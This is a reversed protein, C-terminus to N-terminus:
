QQISGRVAHLGLENGSGEDLDKTRRRFLAQWCIVPSWTTWTQWCGRVAVICCGPRESKCCPPGSTQIGWSTLMRICTAEHLWTSAAVPGPQMAHQWIPLQSAVSDVNLEQRLARLQRHSPQCPRMALGADKGVHEDNQSGFDGFPLRVPEPGTEAATGQRAMVARSQRPNTLRSGGSHRAPRCDTITGRLPKAQVAESPRSFSSGPSM